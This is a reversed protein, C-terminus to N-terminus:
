ILLCFLQPVCCYMITIRIVVKSWKITLHHFMYDDPYFYFLINNHQSFRSVIKNDKINRKMKMNLHMKHRSYNYVTTADFQLFSHRSLYWISCRPYSNHESLTMLILKINYNALIVTMMACSIGFLKTRLELQWHVTGAM